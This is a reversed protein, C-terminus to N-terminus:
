IIKNKYAPVEGGYSQEILDLLNHWEDKMM